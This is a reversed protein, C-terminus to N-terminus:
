KLKSKRHNKGVLIIEIKRWTMPSSQNLGALWCLLLLLLEADHQMACHQTKILNRWTVNGCNDCVQELVFFFNKSPNPHNKVYFISKSLWIKACKSVEVNCWKVFNLLKKQAHQNKPLFRELITGGVGWNSFEVVLIVM